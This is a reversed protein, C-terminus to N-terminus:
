INAISQSHPFHQENYKGIVDKLISELVQLNQPNVAESSKLEIVYDPNGSANKVINIIATINGKELDEKLLSDNENVIHISPINKIANYVPNNITDANKSLAVDLSIGGGEGIFGFVLIFVLPFVISFVVASPSRLISRLSGKTIAIMAKFQNYKTQM